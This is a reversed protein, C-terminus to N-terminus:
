GKKVFKKQNNFKVEISDKFVKLLEVGNVVAGVKMICGEGNIQVLVLQKNSTQNKIIGSYTLSPWQIPSKSAQQYTKKENKLYSIVPLKTSFPDRYVGNITFTDEVFTQDEIDVMINSSIVVKDTDSIVVNFIRYIIIGWLGLTCPVLVYLLKKNKLM